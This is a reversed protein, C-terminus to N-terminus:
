EVAEVLPKSLVTGRWNWGPAVVRIKVLTGPKVVASVAWDYKGAADSSVEREAGVELHADVHLFTSIWRLVAAPVMRLRRLEAHNVDEMNLAKDLLVLDRLVNDNMAAAVLHREHEHEVLARLRATDQLAADGTASLLELMNVLKRLSRRTSALERRGAIRV